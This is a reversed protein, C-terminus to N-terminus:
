LDRSIAAGGDPSLQFEKLVRLMLQEVVRHIAVKVPVTELGPPTSTNGIATHLAHRFATRTFKKTGVTITVSMEYADTVTTGVLGFTLGTGVGKAVAAGTDAVNNVVVRIQGESDAAVPVIVGSARLVREVTDKLTSDAQPLPVGNRQFQTGLSLKLPSPRRQLEEYSVKPYSPDLFSKPSACGALLLAVAILAILKM